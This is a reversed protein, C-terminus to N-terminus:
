TAPMRRPSGVPLRAEAEPPRQLLSAPTDEARAEALLWERFARVKPREAKAPATVLWYAFRTPLRPGFPVCLRGARLDDAALSLRGLAVGEGAAAAELVMSLHSYGIGRGPDIGAEGLGAAALWVRWDPSDATGGVDDHLLTFRKLDAPTKLGKDGECLAPACVPLIEDGLLWETEVGPYRGGGYRVAIDIEEREPDVVRDDASVLVDIEPHARRFRGLRPLLWKAAFSTLVSVRLPGEAESRRVQRVARDLLDFAQTAPDLLAQGAETLALARNLRRFLPVGLTDELAKVQHSVAAQTVSLEDAAKTFSLHRAAAEFARLANLPPLRRRMGAMSVEFKELGSRSFDDNTWRM